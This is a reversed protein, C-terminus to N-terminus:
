FNSDGLTYSLGVTVIHSPYGSRIRAASVMVVISLVEIANRTLIIRISQFKFLLWYGDGVLRYLIQIRLTEQCGSFTM